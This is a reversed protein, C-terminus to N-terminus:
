PYWSPFVSHKPLRYSCGTVLYYPYDSLHTGDPSNMRKQVTAEYDFTGHKTTHRVHVQDGPQFGNPNTNLNM